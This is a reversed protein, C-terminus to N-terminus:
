PSEVSDRARAGPAPGYFQRYWHRLRGIPGDDKVLLPRSRYVKHEWIAIDEHFGIRLNDIYQASFRKTQEVDTMVKLMVGFRLDLTNEDIPTHALLLRSELVGDMSTIQYAPGYYTATLQFRDSGGGRPHAVGSTRQVAMHGVFENEFVEVSTGHVEPFHAKDAVNEVIESPHTRVRLCSLNWDLWSDDAVEPLLPIEYSPSHGQADHWVFILGNREICPWSSLCAQKPIRSAYPIAVCQGHEDFQWAHFPCEIHGGVVRGGVSLDAGLHPCYAELIHVRGDTSRWMVLRQGFYNLGKVEGVALEDAAAV